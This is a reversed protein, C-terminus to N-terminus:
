DVPHRENPAAARRQLLIIILVLTAGLVLLPALCALGALLFTIVLTHSPSKNEEGLINETNEAQLDEVINEPVIDGGAFAEQNILAEEEASDYTCLYEADDKQSIM